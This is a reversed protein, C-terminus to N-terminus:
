TRDNAVVKNQVSNVLLRGDFERKRVGVVDVHDAAVVGIEAMAASVAGLEAVVIVVSAAVVGDAEPSQAEVLTAGVVAVVILIIHCRASDTAM